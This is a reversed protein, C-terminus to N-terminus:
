TAMCLLSCLPVQNFCQNFLFILTVFSPGSSALMSLAMHLFTGALLQGKIFGMGNASSSVKCWQQSVRQGYGVASQGESGEWRCAVQDPNMDEDEMSLLTTKDNPATL